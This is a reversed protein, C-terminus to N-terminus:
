PFRRPAPGDPVLRGLLRRNRAVLDYGLDLVREAGRTRVLASWIGLHWFVHAVARGRSVLGSEPEALRVSAFREGEPLGTLFPEAEDDGLPLLALAGRRDLRAVARAAFRCLRCGADYLLVPPQPVEGLVAVPPRRNDDADQEEGGVSDRM